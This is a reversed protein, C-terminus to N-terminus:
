LREEEYKIAAEMNKKLDDGGLGLSGLKKQQETLFTEWKGKKTCILNHSFLSRGFSYLVFTAHMCVKWVLQSILICPTSYWPAEGKNQRAEMKLELEMWSRQEPTLRELISLKNAVGFKQFM